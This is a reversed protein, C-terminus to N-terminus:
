LLFILSYLLLYYFFEPDFPSDQLKFLAVNKISFERDSRVIVPNGITGIMAYLIDNRDVASRKSIKHHDDESIFRVNEFDLVGYKLNKSTLLPIGSEIYKPTDHTGDRVDVVNGCKVVEYDNM